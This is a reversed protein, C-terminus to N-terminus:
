GIVFLLYLFMYQQQAVRNLGDVETSLAVGVYKGVLLVLLYWYCVVFVFFYISTACCIGVLLLYLCIGVLLLYCIDIDHFGAQEM